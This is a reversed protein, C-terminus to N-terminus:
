RSARESIMDSLVKESSDGREEIHILLRRAYEFWDALRSHVWRSVESYTLELRHVPWKIEDVDIVARIEQDGFTTVLSLDYNSVLCSPYLEGISQFFRFSDDCPVIKAETMEARGTIDMTQKVLIHSVVRDAQHWVTKRNLHTQQKQGLFNRLHPLFFYKEAVGINMGAILHVVADEARANALLPVLRERDREKAANLFFLAAYYEEFSRHTYAFELGDQQMICTSTLLDQLYKEPNFHDLLCMQGAVDILRVLESRSYTPRSIIYTSIALWALVSVFQGQHLGAFRRREFNGDKVADHSSWLTSFVHDFFLHRELPINRRFDHTMLMVTLMLPIRLFSEYEDYLTQDLARLFHRKATIEYDLKEIIELGKEKTLPEVSYEVAHGFAQLEIPRSAVVVVLKRYRSCLASIEMSLRQRHEPVVEDFGDLLLVLSGRKLLKLLETHGLTLGLDAMTSLTLAELTTREGANLARLRIYVPAARFAGHISSVLFHRMLTSKGAGGTGTILLFRSQTSKVLDPLTPSKLITGAPTRLDLPIFFRYLYQPEKRYLLTRVYGVQRVAESLYRDLGLRLARRLADTAAGSLRRAVMPAAQEAARVVADVAAKLAVEEIM